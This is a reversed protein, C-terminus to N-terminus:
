CLIIKNSCIAFVTRCFLRVRGGAYYAISFLDPNSRLVRSVRHSTIVTRRQDGRGNRGYYNPVGSLLKMRVDNLKFCCPKGSDDVSVAAAAALIEDESFTLSIVKVKRIGDSVADSQSLQQGIRFRYM